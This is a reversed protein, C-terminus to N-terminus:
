RPCIPPVWLKRWAESMWVASAPVYTSKGQRFYSVRWAGGLRELGLAGRAQSSKRQSYVVAFSSGPGEETIRGVQEIPKRLDSATPSRKPKQGAAIKPCHLVQRSPLAACPQGNLATVTQLECASRQNGSDMYRVWEQSVAAQPAAPGAQHPIPDASGNAAGGVVAVAGTMLALIVSFRRM